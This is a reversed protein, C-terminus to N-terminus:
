ADDDVEKVVTFPVQDEEKDVPPGYLFRRLQERVLKEWELM